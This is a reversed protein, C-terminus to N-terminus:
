EDITYEVIETKINRKGNEDLYEVQVPIKNKGIAGNVKLKYSAHGGNVEIAKNNINIQPKNHSSFEGMGATITLVDGKKVHTSSQGVIIGYKIFRLCSFTQSNYKCTRIMANELSSIEFLKRNLISKQV